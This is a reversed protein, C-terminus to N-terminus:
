FFSVYDRKKKPENEALTTAAYHPFQNILEKNKREVRQTDAQRQALEIEWVLLQPELDDIKKGYLNRVTNIRHQAAEFSKKKTYFNVVYLEQDVLKKYCLKQINKIEHVYEKSGSEDLYAQIMDLTDKTKSQDRDHELTQYFRCLIAKYEAYERYTSGPYFIVYEGYMKGAQEFKGMDFYVDALELRGSKLVQQDETIILIRELYQTADELQGLQIAYEKACNLQEFTMDPIPKKTVQRLKNKLEARQEQSAEVQRRKEEPTLPRHEMKKLVVPPLEQAFRACGPLLLMLGSITCLYLIQNNCRQLFNRVKM